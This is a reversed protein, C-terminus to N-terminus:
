RGLQDPIGDLRPHYPTSGRLASAVANSFERVNFPKQLFTWGIRRIERGVPNAPYTRGLLIVRPAPGGESRSFLVALDSSDLDCVWLDAQTGCFHRAGLDVEQVRWGAQGLLRVVLNRCDEDQEIVVAVAPDAGNEAHSEM